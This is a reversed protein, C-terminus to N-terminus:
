HAILVLAGGAMVAGGLARLGLDGVARRAVWGLGLGAAHLLATAAVFGMIYLGTGSTPAEIAHAYGHFVAFLGVVAMAAASPLRVAAIILAGLVLVSGVIAGEALPLKIGAFGAAAGVLMMAIFSAPVLYAAAPRKVSLLSAWVGVGIMALLHDVGAFPHAFGSTEHGPHALVPSAAMVLLAALRITRITM